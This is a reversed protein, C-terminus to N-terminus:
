QALLTTYNTRTRTTTTTTTANTTCHLRTYPLTTYHRATTTTTDNYNYNYTYICTYHLTAYRLTTYNLLLLASSTTHHLTTTIQHLTASHLQLQLQRQTCTKLIEVDLLPGLGDTKLCKQSWFRSRAVVHLKEDRMEGSPEADVAKAFCLRKAVTRGNRVGQDEKKQRRKESRIEEEKRKESQEGWQQQM